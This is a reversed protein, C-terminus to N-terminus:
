PQLRSSYVWEPPIGDTGTPHFAAIFINVVEENAQPLEVHLLTLPSCHLRTIASVMCIYGCCRCSDLNSEIDVHTFLSCQTQETNMHAAYM